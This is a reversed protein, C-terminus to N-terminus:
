DPYLATWMLGLHGNQELLVIEEKTDLSKLMQKSSEM